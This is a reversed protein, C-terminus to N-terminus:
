MVYTAGGDILYDPLNYQFNLAYSRIFTETCPELYCTGIIVTQTLISGRVAAVVMVVVQVVVIVDVM